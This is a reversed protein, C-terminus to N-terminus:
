ILMGLTQLLLGFAIVLMGREFSRQEAKQRKFEVDGGDAFLGFYPTRRSATMVGVIDINLGLVSLLRSFGAPSALGHRAFFIAWILLSVIALV